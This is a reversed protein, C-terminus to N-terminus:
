LDLFKEEFSMITSESPENMELDRYFEKNFYVIEEQGKATLNVLTNVKEEHLNLSYLAEQSKETLLVEIINKEIRKLCKLDLNNAGYENNNQYFLVMQALRSNLMHLETIEKTKEETIRNFEKLKKNKEELEKRLFYNKEQLEELGKSKMEFSNILSVRSNREFSQVKRAKLGFKLTNLTQELQSVCPNICLVMLTKAKGGL